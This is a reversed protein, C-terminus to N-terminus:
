PVEFIRVTEFKLGSQDFAEIYVNYVGSEFEHFMTLPVNRTATAQEPGGHGDGDDWTVQLTINPSSYDNCTFVMTLRGIPGNMSEEYTIDCTPPDNLVTTATSKIEGGGDKDRVRGRVTYAGPFKKGCIWSSENSWASWRADGCDFSFELGAALDSAGIDAAGVLSVEFENGEHIENPLTLTGASANANAIVVQRTTTAFSGHMDTVTLSLTYTGNDTYTHTTFRGTGTTADGFDWAFSLTSRDGYDPDTSQAGNIQISKGEVLGYEQVGIAASPSANPGIHRSPDSPSRGADSANTPTDGCGGLAFAGAVAVAALTVRLTMRIM